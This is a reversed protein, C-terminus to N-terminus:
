NLQRASAWRTLIGGVDDVGWGRRRTGVFNARGWAFNTTDPLSVNLMGKYVNNANWEYSKGGLPKVKLAKRHSVGIQPCSRAWTSGSLTTGDSITNTILEANITWVLTRWNNTSSVCPLVHDQVWITRSAVGYLCQNIRIVCTVDSNLKMIKIKNIDKTSELTSKQHAKLSLLHGDLKLEASCHSLSQVKLCCCSAFPGDMHWLVGTLVPVTTAWRSAKLVEIVLSEWLCTFHEMKSKVSTRSYSGWSSM